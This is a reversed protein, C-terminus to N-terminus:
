AGPNRRENNEGNENVQNVLLVYGVFALMVIGGIVILVGVFTIRMKIGRGLGCSGRLRKGRLPFRERQRRVRQNQNAKAHDLIQSRLGPVDPPITTGHSYAKGAVTRREHRRTVPQIGQDRRTRARVSSCWLSRLNPVAQKEKDNLSRKAGYM